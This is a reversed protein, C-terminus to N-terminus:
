IGAVLLRLGSHPHVHVNPKTEEDLVHMSFLDDHASPPKKKNQNNKKAM